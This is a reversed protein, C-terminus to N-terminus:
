SKLIDKSLGDDTIDESPWGSSSGALQRLIPLQRKKLCKFYRVTAGPSCLFFKIAM